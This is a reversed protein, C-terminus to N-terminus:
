HRPACAAHTDGHGGWREAHEGARDRRPPTLPPLSRVTPRAGGAAALQELLPACIIDGRCRGSIERSRGTGGAAFQELLPASFVLAHTLEHMAVRVLYGMYGSAMYGRAVGGRGAAGALQAPLHRPSRTM